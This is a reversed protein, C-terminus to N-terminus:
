RFCDALFKSGYYYCKLQCNDNGTAKTAITM